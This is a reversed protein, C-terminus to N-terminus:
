RLAQELIGFPLVPLMHLLAGLMVMNTLRKEGLSEAIENAPMM